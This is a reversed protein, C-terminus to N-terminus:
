KNNKIKEAKMKAIEANLQAITKGQLKTGGAGTVSPTPKKKSQGTGGGVLKNKLTKKRLNLPRRKKRFSRGRHRRKRKGGRKRYRKRSQIKSKRIQHLRKKTLLM